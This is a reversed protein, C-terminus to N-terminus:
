TLRRKSCTLHPFGFVPYPVRYGGPASRGRAGAAGEVARIGAYMRSLDAQEVWAWVVRARHGESLLADLGSVRMELQVGNPMHGRAIGNVPAKVPVATAQMGPDDEFLGRQPADAMARQRKGSRHPWQAAEQLTV